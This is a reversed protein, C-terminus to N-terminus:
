AADSSADALRFMVRWQQFYKLLAPELDSLFGAPLIPPGFICIMETAVDKDDADRVVLMDSSSVQSAPEASAYIPTRTGSPETTAPPIAQQHILNVGHYSVRQQWLPGAEEMARSPDIPGVM